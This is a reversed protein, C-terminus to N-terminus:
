ELWNKINIIEGVMMKSLQKKNGTIRISRELTELTGLNSKRAMNPAWIIINMKM